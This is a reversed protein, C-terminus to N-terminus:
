TNFIQACKFREGLLSPEILTKVTSLEKLYNTYSTNKELIELLELLGMELLAKVQTKYSYKLGLDQAIAGLHSFCVDYTLDCLKYDRAFDIESFPKTQHAKYTRLTFRNAMEWEGYDFAFFEFREFAAKVQGLIQAYNLPIEARQIKFRAAFEALDERAPLWVLEGGQEYAMKGADFLECPQADFLENCFVFGAGARLASLDKVWRFKVSDGFCKHLYARQEQENSGFPEAIVFELSELLTPDFSYLFQVLDSMMYGRDAGIECVLANRPLAGSKIRRYLYYGLTGGFYRSSSVSTYFDGKSGIKRHKQYYGDKAYLWENM